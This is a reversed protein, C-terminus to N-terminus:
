FLTKIQFISEGDRIYLIYIIFITVAILTLILVGLFVEITKQWLTYRPKTEEKLKDLEEQVSIYEAM